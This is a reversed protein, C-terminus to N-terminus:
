ARVLPLKESLMATHEAAEIVRIKTDAPDTSAMPCVGAFGPENLRSATIGSDLLVSVSKRAPDPSDRACLGPAAKTSPTATRKAAGNTKNVTFGSESIRL